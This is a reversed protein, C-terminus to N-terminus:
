YGQLSKWFRGTEQYQEEQEEEEDGATVGFASASFKRAYWALAASVFVDPPHKSFLDDTTLYLLEDRVFHILPFRMRGKEMAMIFDNFLEAKTKPTWIVDERPVTIYSAIVDGLGTADHASSGVYSACRKNFKDIQTPWPIRHERSWSVCIDPIPFEDSPPVRRPSFELPVHVFDPHTSLYLGTKNCRVYKGNDKLYLKSPVGRPVFLGSPTMELDDNRVMTTKVTDDRKRAWDAGTYYSETQVYEKVPKQITYETNPLGRHEGLFLSFSRRVSNSDIARDDESPEGLEYEIDWRYKSVTGKKQDVEEQALWGGNTVLSERWCWSYLPWGRARARRVYESMTGNPYQWTSSFVNQSPIGNAGMAQGLASELINPDMEDIEDARVRQPHPGRVSAQSAMLATLKGGNVLLSRTATIDSLLMWRPAVPSDWFKGKSKQEKAQLYELVRKSQEGSGGILSVEAGLQIQETLSLVSLTLTKGSLGRAGWWIANTHRAFFADALARFPTSHHPCCPRWPIQIGLVIAIWLWLERDNTSRKTALNCKEEFTLDPIVM